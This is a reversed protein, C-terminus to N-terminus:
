EGEPKDFCKKCEHGTEHNNCYIEDYLEFEKKCNDCSDIELECYECIVKEETIVNTQHMSKAM